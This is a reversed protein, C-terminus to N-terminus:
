AAPNHNSQKRRRSAESLVKGLLSNLSNRKIIQQYIKVVVVLVKNGYVVVITWLWLLFFFTFNGIKLIGCAISAIENM